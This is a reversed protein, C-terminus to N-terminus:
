SVQENLYPRSKMARRFAGGRIVERDKYLGTVLILWVCTHRPKYVCSLWVEARHSLVLAMRQKGKFGNFGEISERYIVM